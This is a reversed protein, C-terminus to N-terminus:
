FDKKFEKFSMKLVFNCKKSNYIRKTPEINNKFM